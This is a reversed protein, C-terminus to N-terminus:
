GRLMGQFANHYLEEAAEKVMNDIRIRNGENQNWRTKYGEGIKRVTQPLIRDKYMQKITAVSGVGLVAAVVLGPPTTLFGAIALGLGLPGMALLVVVAIFIGWGESILMRIAKYTKLKVHYLEELGCGSGSESIKNAEEIVDNMFDNFSYYRSM